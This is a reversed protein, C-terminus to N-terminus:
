ITELGSGLRSVRFDQKTLNDYLILSTRFYVERSKYMIPKIAACKCHFASIALILRLIAPNDRQPRLLPLIM